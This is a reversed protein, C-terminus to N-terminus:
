HFDRSMSPVRKGDSRKSGDLLLAEMHSVVVHVVAGEREIKGRVHVLSATTAVHRLREFVKAWLVLNVFGHEDELTAFVVGSATGPRQRCIVLGATEVRRGHKAKAVDRSSLVKKPLKPRLLLMPHDDVSIGTREYDLVLQEARGLPALQVKCTDLEKGEYLGRDRPLVVGWIAERRGGVLDDLAGAEALAVLEGRDLEARAQLDDVNV